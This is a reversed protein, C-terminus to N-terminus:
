AEQDQESLYQLTRQRAAPDDPEIVNIGRARLYQRVQRGLARADRAGSEAPDLNFGPPQPAQVNFGPPRPEQVNFGPVAAPAAFGAMLDASDRNAPDFKAFRSRLQNPERFLWSVTPTGDPLTNYNAFRIADYGDGWANRALWYIDEPTEKGSANFTAVKSQRAFLPMVRVGSSGQTHFAHALADTYRPDEAAWLGPSAVGRSQPSGLGFGFEQFDPGKTAHYLPRDVDFGMQRARALRATEAVPLSRFPGTGGMGVAGRPALGAGGALSGLMLTQAARPTVQGIVQGTDVGSLLDAWGRLGQRLTNPMAASYEGGSNAYGTLDPNDPAYPQESVPQPTYPMPVMRRAIPLIEGYTMDSAPALADYAWRMGEPATEATYGNRLPGWTQFQSPRGTLFDIDSM